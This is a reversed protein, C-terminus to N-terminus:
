ATVKTADVEVVAWDETAGDNGVNFSIPPSLVVHGIVRNEEDQWDRLIDALFSNSAEIAEETEKMKREVVEREEKAENEDRIKGALASELRTTLDESMMTLYDIEKEINEVRARFAAQGLLIVKVKSPGSNEKDEYKENAVEHPHFLVHRATLMFLKGPKANDTFFFGATGEYQPTNANCIPIGLSTSFPEVVRAIPSSILKPAYLAADFHAKSERLEVHVDLIGHDVLISRCHVAVEIGVESSLSGPNVGILVVAPPSLIAM